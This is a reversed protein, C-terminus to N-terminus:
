LSDISSASILKNMSSTKKSYPLSVRKDIEVVGSCMQSRATIQVFLLTYSFIHFM